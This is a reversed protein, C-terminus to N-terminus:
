ASPPAALIAEVVGQVELAERLSALTTARGQTMAAVKDLHRALIMPRAKENPIADAAPQWVGNVEREAFSWDRLRIRGNSGTLTWTNHDDKPTTGVNGILTVPLGGATLQARIARESRGADPYRCSAPGLDLPGLLRRSLFLFHSGVERTFGGEARTTAYNVADPPTLGREIRDGTELVTSCGALLGLALLPLIKKM